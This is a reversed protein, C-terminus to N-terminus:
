KVFGALAVFYNIKLLFVFRLYILSRGGNKM